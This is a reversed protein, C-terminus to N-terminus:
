GASDGYCFVMLLVHNYGLRFVNLAFIGGQPVTVQKGDITLTIDARRTSTSSFLRRKGAPNKKQALHAPHPPPPPPPHLPKMTASGAANPDFFPESKNSSIAMPRTQSNYRRSMGFVGDAYERKGWRGFLAYRSRELFCFAGAKVTAVVSRSPQQLSRLM